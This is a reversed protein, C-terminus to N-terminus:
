KGMKSLTLYRYILTYLLRHVNSFIPAFNSLKCELNQWIIRYTCFYIIVNNKLFFAFKKFGFITVVVNVGGGEGNPDDPFIIKQPFMQASLCANVLATKPSTHGGSAMDELAAPNPDVYVGTWRREIEFFLSVADSGASAEVFFGSWKQYFFADIIGAQRLQSAKGGASHIL